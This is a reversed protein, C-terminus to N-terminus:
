NIELKFGRFNIKATDVTKEENLFICFYNVKEWAGHRNQVKLNDGIYGTMHENQELVDFKSDFLGDTWEYEFPRLDEIATKCKNTPSNKYILNAAVIIAICIFVALLVIIKLKFNKM